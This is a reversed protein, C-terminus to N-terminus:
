APERDDIWEIEVEGDLRVEMTLKCNWILNFGILPVDESHVVTIDFERGVLSVNADYADAVLTEGNAM